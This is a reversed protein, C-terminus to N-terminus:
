NRGAAREDLHRQVVDEEARAHDRLGAVIAQEVRHAVFPVTVRLDADTRRLTLGDREELTITGNCHLRDPYHDPVIEFDSRHTRRDLVSDEVWTLRAPDLIARAASSLHGTFRHRVRLRVTDGEEVRELLEPRGVKAWEAIQQLVAQDSFADEVAVLPASFQQELEFHV